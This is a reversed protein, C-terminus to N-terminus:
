GRSFREANARIAERLWEAAGPRTGAEIGARFRPDDVYLEGKLVHFDHTTDYFWRSIHQRQAEAVDMAAEGAPDAGADMLERIRAEIAANDSKIREWDEKGYTAVRKASQAYAESDGWRQEVEDLYEEERDAWEGWVERKEEATLPSTMKKAM